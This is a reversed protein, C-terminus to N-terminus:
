RYRALLAKYRVDSKLGDLAPNAELLPIARFGNKFAEHLHRIALDDEAQRAKLVAFHYDVMSNGSDLHKAQILLVEAESLRGGDMRHAAERVLALSDSGSAVLKDAAGGNADQAVAESRSETKISAIPTVADSNPSQVLGRASSESSLSQISSSEGMLPAAVASSVNIKVPVSTGSTEVRRYFIKGALPVDVYMRNPNELYFSIGLGLPFEVLVEEGHSSFSLIPFRVDLERVYVDKDGVVLEPGIPVSLSQVKLREAKWHGQITASNDDMCGSLLTALVLSAVKFWLVSPKM